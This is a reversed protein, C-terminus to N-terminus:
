AADRKEAHLWVLELGMETFIAILRTQIIEQQLDIIADWDVRAQACRVDPECVSPSAIDSIISVTLRDQM